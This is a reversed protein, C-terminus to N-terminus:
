SMNFLSLSSSLFVRFIYFGIDFNTLMYNPGEEESAPDFSINLSNEAKVSGFPTRIKCIRDKLNQFFILNEENGIFSSIITAEDTIENPNYNQEHM